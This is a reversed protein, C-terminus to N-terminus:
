CTASTIVYTRLAHPFESGVATFAVSTVSIRLASGATAAFGNSYNREMFGCKLAFVCLHLSAVCIRRERQVKADKRRRTLQDASKAVKNVATASEDTACFGLGSAITKIEFPM